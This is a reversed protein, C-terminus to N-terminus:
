PGLLARIRLERCDFPHRNIGHHLDALLMAERHHRLGARSNDNRRIEKEHLRRQISLIDMAKTPRKPAPLLLLFGRQSKELLINGFMRLRRGGVLMEDLKEGAPERDVLSELPDARSYM